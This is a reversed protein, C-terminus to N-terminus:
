KCSFSTDDLNFTNLTETTEYHITYDIFEVAHKNTSSRTALLLSSSGEKGMGSMAIKMVCADSRRALDEANKNQEAIFRADRTVMPSARSTCAYSSITWKLHGVYSVQPSSCLFFLYGSGTYCRAGSFFFCIRKARWLQHSRPFCCLHRFILHSKSVIKELILQCIWKEGSQEIPRVTWECM